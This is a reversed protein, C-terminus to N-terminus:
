KTPLSKLWAIVLASLEQRQDSYSHDTAFHQMQVVGDGLKKAAEGLADDATQLGDDATAILLPRTSLAKANASFRWTAAHDLVDQALSEPTCGALPAMGESALAAAIRKRATGQAIKPLNEPVRGGIDAASILAVGLLAPDAGAEQVAFFGGMSHGVLAIRSSDAHIKAANAPDRVWAVAAAVDEIGNSFSYAGPSGWSGRYHFFVVDWGARRIDQALDLNQENGPFGHLLVAVPHPGAGAAVYVLGNMLSGHSSIQISEMAARDEAKRSQPQAHLAPILSLAFLVVSAFRQPRVIM